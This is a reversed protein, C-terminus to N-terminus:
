YLSGIRVPDYRGMTKPQTYTPSGFRTAMTSAGGLVTGAASYYSGTRTMSAQDSYLSATTDGEFRKAAASLKLDKGRNEGGYLATMEQLTGYKSIEDAMALNSPDTASFGSSAGVAQLRSLAMNKQRRMQLMDRQGSAFEDKAKIDLQKAQFDAAQKNAAGQREYYEAQSQGAAITGVATVATAAMSTIAAITALEAM